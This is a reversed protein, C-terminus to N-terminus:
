SDKRSNLHISNFLFSLKAFSSANFDAQPLAISSHTVYTVHTFHLSTFHQLSHQCLTISTTHPRCTTGRTRQGAVCDVVIHCANGHADLSTETWAITWDPVVAVADCAVFTLTQLCQRKHPSPTSPLQVSMRDAAWDPV